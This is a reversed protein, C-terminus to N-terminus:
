HLSRAIAVATSLDAFPVTISRYTDHAIWELQGTDPAWRADTHDFSVRLFDRSSPVLSRVPNSQTIRLGNESYDTESGRYYATLTARAGRSRSLTAATLRYGDPVYEPALAYSARAYPDEDDIRFIRPGDAGLGHVRDPARRGAVGLSGAVKFLEARPLNSELHVQVADTFLDIRRGLSVSAPQYYASGGDGALDIVEATLPYFPKPPHLRQATIKLWTMGRAYSQVIQGNETRGSRYPDLGGVYRPQPAWAVPHSGSHFGASKVLGRTTVDFTGAPFSTESSFSSARVNLLTQGPRDELGQLEAWAARDPADSAIVKFQLPFWTRRDIWLRIEDSPNFPRWSGGAELADVLPIADAYTLELEYAARGAVSDPGVVRFHDSSVLTELPVILDTPLHSTGDFPQRKVITRSESPTQERLACPRLAALPCQWETPEEISWKRPNAVVEVNNRPWGQDPYPTFDSVLMRLSEPAEFWLEASFHRLPVSPHWGREVIDYSARYGGLSRAASRVADAIEGASAVDGQHGGLPLSAGAFVLASIAAAIGAVKFRSAWESRNRLRPGDNEVAVMIRRTLDPVREVPQIRVARRAGRLADAEHRCAACQELHLDLSRETAEDLEGDLRASLDVRADACRM